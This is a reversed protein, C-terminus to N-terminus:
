KLALGIRENFLSKARADDIRHDTPCVYFPLILFLCLFYRSFFYTQTGGNLSPIAVYCSRLYVVNNYFRCQIQLLDVQSCNRRPQRELVVNAKAGAAFGLM